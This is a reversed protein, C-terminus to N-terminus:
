GGAVVLQVGGIKCGASKGYVLKQYPSVGDLRSEIEGM